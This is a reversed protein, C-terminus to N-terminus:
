LERLREESTLGGADRSGKRKALDSQAQQLQANIDQSHKMSAVTTVGLCVILLALISVLIRSTTNM